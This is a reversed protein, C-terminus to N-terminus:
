SSAIKRRIIFDNLNLNMKEHHIYIHKCLSPLSFSLGCRNCDTRASLFPEHGIKGVTHKKFTSETLFHINCQECKYITDSYKKLDILDLNAKSIIYDSAIVANAESSLNKIADSMSKYQAYVDVKGIDVIDIDAVDDNHHTENHLDFASIDIFLNCKTCQIKEVDMKECIAYHLKAKELDVFHVNCMSCKYMNFISNRDKTMNIINITYTNKKDGHHKLLHNFLQKPTFLLGCKSCNQKAIKLTCHGFHLKISDSDLFHLGCSCKYLKDMHETIVGVISVDNYNSKNLSSTEKTSDEDIENLHIMKDISDVVNKESDDNNNSIGKNIKSIMTKECRNISEVNNEKYPILSFNESKFYPDNEHQKYHNNILRKLFFLQCISCKVKSKIDACDHNIMLTQNSKKFCINCHNCVYFIYDILTGDFKAPLSTSPKQKNRQGFCIIRMNVHIFSDIFKHKTIHSKYDSSFIRLACTSCKKLDLTNCIHYRDQFRDFIGHCKRCMFLIFKGSSNIINKNFEKDKERNFVVIKFAKISMDPSIEHVKEHNLRSLHSIFPIGCFSCPHKRLRFCSNEEHNYISEPDIYVHCSNCRYVVVNSSGEQLVYLKIRGEYKYVSRDLISQVINSDISDFANKIWVKFDHAFYFPDFTVLSFTKKEIRLNHLINHDGYVRRDYKMKCVECTDRYLSFDFENFHEQCHEIAKDYSDLTIYCNSCCYVVSFLELDSPISKPNLSKKKTLVNIEDKNAIHRIKSETNSSESQKCINNHRKINVDNIDMIPDLDESELIIATQLSNSPLIEAPENNILISRNRKREGYKKYHHFAIHLKFALDSLKTDCIPCTLFDKNECTHKRLNLKTLYHVNCQFCKPYKPMPPQIQHGTKLDYFVFNQLTLKKKDNHQRLHLKLSEMTVFLGCYKCVKKSIKNCYQQKHCIFFTKDVYGKCSECYGMEYNEKIKKKDNMVLKSETNDIIIPDSDVVTFDVFPMEYTKHDADHTQKIIKDILFDCKICYACDPADDCTKHHYAYNDDNFHVACKPCKYLVRSLEQANLEYVIFDDSYKHQLEHYREDCKKFIRQCNSCKWNILIEMHNSHNMASKASMFYIDCRQCKFLVTKLVLPTNKNSNCITELTSETPVSTINNLSKCLSYTEMANQTYEIKCGTTDMNSKESARMHSLIKPSIKDDFNEVKPICIVPIVKTTNEIKEKHSKQMHANYSCFNKTVLFCHKCEPDFTYLKYNLIHNEKHKKIMHNTYQKINKFYYSCYYCRYFQQNKITKQQTTHEEHKTSIKKIENKDVIRRDSKLLSRSKNQLFCKQAVFKALSISRRKSLRKLRSERTKNSSQLVSYIHDILLQQDAFKKKCHFCKTERIKSHENAQSLHLSPNVNQFNGLKIKSNDTQKTNLEIILKDPTKNIYEILNTSKNFYLCCKECKCKKTPIKHLSNTGSQKNHYVTLHNQFDEPKAFLTKCTQCYKGSNVLFSSIDNLSISTMYPKVNKEYYEGSIKSQQNPKTGLIIKNTFPLNKENFINTNEEITSTHLSCDDTVRESNFSDAPTISSREIMSEPESKIIQEREDYIAIEKKLVSLDPFIKKILPNDLLDHDEIDIEEDM